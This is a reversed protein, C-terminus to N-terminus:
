HYPNLNVPVLLFLYIEFGCIKIDKSKAYTLDAYKCFIRTKSALSIIFLCLECSRLKIWKTLRFILSRTIKASCTHIHFSQHDVQHFSGDSQLEIQVVEEHKLVNDTIPDEQNQCFILGNSIPTSWRTM